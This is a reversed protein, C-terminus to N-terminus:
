YNQKTELWAARGQELAIKVRPDAAVDSPTTAISERLEEMVAYNKRAMENNFQEQRAEWDRKEADKLEGIIQEESFRSQRM